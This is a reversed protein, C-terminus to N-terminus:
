ERERIDVLLAWKTRETVQFGEAPGVGECFVLQGAAELLVVRGRQFVPVKQEQFLQKMSKSLRRGAPSFRDGERRSRARLNGTIIDYDLANKFLLNHIKPSNEGRSLPKVQLFLTKGCPLDTKGLAVEQSFGEAEGAEGMKKLSFVGQSCQSLFGGPLGTEGGQALCCCLADVHQKELPPVGQERSFLRLVRTQVARHSAGLLATDLGWPVRAEQLLSFAQEELFSEDLSLTGVMRSVAELVQPNLEELVPLVQHRLRNRTYEQSLNSSDTVYSLGERRCYAEIEERPVKLLPRLVKGRSYPIGLLGPLSTGRCLHLLITELNDNANHATLIRDEKGPALSEFFRYRVNRGCEELGLGEQRALAAVDERLVELRLAHGQAFARCAEEDRQSEEGRLQHNVHALVLRQPDVKGLLWHCLATSDAGGSFGVVILGQQPLGSLDGAALLESM